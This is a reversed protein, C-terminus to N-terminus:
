TWSVNSFVLSSPAIGTPSGYEAIAALALPALVENAYKQVQTAFFQCSAESPLPVFVPTKPCGPVALATPYKLIVAGLTRTPGLKTDTTHVKLGNLVAHQALPEGVFKAFAYPFVPANFAASLSLTKSLEPLLAGTDNCPADQPQAGYDITVTAM